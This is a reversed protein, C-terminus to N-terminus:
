REELAIARVWSAEMRDFRAPLGMYFVRDKTLTSINTLPYTIPINNGMMHRHTPSNNPSPAQFDTEWNVGPVEVALMKIKKVEALWKATDGPLYPQEDGRYPSCMLVIDGERVNALHEPLIAQGVLGKKGKPSTGQVPKLFEFNCVAAPGYFTELPMEWLELMEDPLDEFQGIHGKGAETHSGLHLHMPYPYKKDDPNGLLTHTSNDYPATGQKLTLPYGYPDPVGELIEGDLTQLRAVLKPSLEVIRFDDFAKIFNTMRDDATATAGAFVPVVVSLIPLLSFRFKM